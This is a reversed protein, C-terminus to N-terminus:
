GVFASLPPATSYVPLPPAPSINTTGMATKRVTGHSMNPELTSDNTPDQGLPLSQYSSHEQGNGLAFSAHLNGEGMSNASDAQDCLLRRRRRSRHTETSQEEIPAQLCATPLPQCGPPFDRTAIPEEPTTTATPRTLSLLDMGIALRRKSRSSSTSPTNSKDQQDARASKSSTTLRLTSKVRAMLTLQLPAILPHCCMHSHPKFQYCSTSVSLVFSLQVQTKLTPFFLASIHIFSLCHYLPPNPVYRTYQQPHTRLHSANIYTKSSLLQSHKHATLGNSQLGLPTPHLLQKLFNKFNSNPYQLTLTSQPQTPSSEQHIQHPFQQINTWNNNKSPYQQPPLHLTPQTYYNKIKFLQITLSQRYTTNSFTPPNTINTTTPPPTLTKPLQSNQSPASIHLSLLIKPATQIKHFNIKYLLIKLHTHYKKTTFFQLIHTQAKTHMSFHNNPTHTPHLIVLLNTPTRPIQHLFLTSPYKKLFTNRNHHCNHAFHRQLSTKLTIKLTIQLPTRLYRTYIYHTHSLKTIKKGSSSYTTISIHTPQTHITTTTKQFYHINLTNSLYNTSSIYISTQTNQPFQYYILYSHTTYVTIKVYNQNHTIAITKQSQWHIHKQSNLSITFSTHTHAPHLQPTPPINSQSPTHSQPTPTISINHQISQYHKHTSNSTKLKTLPHTTNLLTLEHTQTYIKTLLTNLPTQNQTYTLSNNLYTRSDTQKRTTPPRSLSYPYPTNSLPKLPKWSFKFQHYIQYSQQPAKLSASRSPSHQAKRRKNYEAPTIKFTELTSLTKDLTDISVGVRSLYVYHARTLLLDLVKRHQNLRTCTAVASLVLATM